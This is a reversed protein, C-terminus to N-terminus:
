ATFSPSLVCNSFARLAFFIGAASSTVFWATGVRRIGKQRQM